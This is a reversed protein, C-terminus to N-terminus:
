RLLTETSLHSYDVYAKGDSETGAGIIQAHSAYVTEFRREFRKGTLSYVRRGRLM